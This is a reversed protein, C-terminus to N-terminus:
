GVDLDWVESKKECFSGSCKARQIDATIAAIWILGLIVIVTWARSPKVLRYCLICRHVILQHTWIREEVKVLPLEPLKCVKVSLSISPFCSRIRNILANVGVCWGDMALSFWSAHSSQQVFTYFSRESDRFGGATHSESRLETSWFSRISLWPQLMKVLSNRGEEACEQTNLWLKSHKTQREKQDTVMAFIFYDFSTKTESEIKNNATHWEASLSLYLGFRLDRESWCSSYNLTVQGGLSWIWAVTCERHTINYSSCRLKM